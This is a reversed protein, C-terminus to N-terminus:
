CNDWKAKELTWGRQGCYYNGYNACNGYNVSRFPGYFYGPRNDGTCAAYCCAAFDGVTRGEEQERSTFEEETTSPLADEEVTVPGQTGESGEWEAGGCGIALMTGLFLLCAGSFKNKM